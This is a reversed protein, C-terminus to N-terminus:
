PPLTGPPSPRPSGEEPSPRAVVRLEEAAAARLVRGAPTDAPVAGSPLVPVEVRIVGEGEPVGEAGVRRLLELMPANSALVWARFRAIGRRRAERALVALLLSGLGRGQHSDVVTIAAEAVEPEGPLRIARAVGLAPLDPASPDLAIWALHDRQDVETLYALERASLDPVGTMFRRYRSTPSLRRLGDRLREKDGPEIPRLLVPSGDRLAHREPASM